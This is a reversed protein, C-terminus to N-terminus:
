GHLIHLVFTYLFAHVMISYQRGCKHYQQIVGQLMEPDFYAYLMQPVTLLISGTTQSTGTTNALYQRDDKLYQQCSVVQRRQPVTTM